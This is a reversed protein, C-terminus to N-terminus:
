GICKVDLYHGIGKREGNTRQDNGITGITGGILQRGELSKRGRACTKSFAADEIAILLTRIPMRLM